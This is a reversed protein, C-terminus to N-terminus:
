LLMEDYGEEANFEWPAFDPEYDDEAPTNPEPTSNNNANSAESAEVSPEADLLSTWPINSTIDTPHVTNDPTSTHSIEVSPTITAHALEEAPDLRHPVGQPELMPSHIEHPSHESSSSNEDASLLQPEYAGSHDPGDLLEEYEEFQDYDYKDAEDDEELDLMEDDTGTEHYVAERSAERNDELTRYGTCIDAWGREDAIDQIDRFDNTHLNDPKATTQLPKLRRAAEPDQLSNTMTMWLHTRLVEKLKTEEIQSHDAMESSETLQMDSIRQVLEDKRTAVLVSKAKQLFSTLFRAITPVFPARVAVAEAYGPIFTSPAVDALRAEWSSTLMRIGPAMRTPKPCILNRLTGDILGNMSHVCLFPVPDSTTEFIANQSWPLSTDQSSFTVSEPNQTSDCSSSDFLDPFVEESSAHTIICPVKVVTGVVDEREPQRWQSDDLQNEEADTIENTPRMINDSQLVPYEMLDVFNESQRRKRPVIATRRLHDFTFSVKVACLRFSRVGLPPKVNRRAGSSDFKQPAHQLQGSNSKYQQRLELELTLFDQDAKEVNNSLCKVDARLQLQSWLQM